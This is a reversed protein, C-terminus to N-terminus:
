GMPPPRRRPDAAQTVASHAIRGGDGARRGMRAAPVDAIAHTRQPDCGAQRLALKGPLAERLLVHALDFAALGPRGCLRDRPQGLPESDVGLVELM